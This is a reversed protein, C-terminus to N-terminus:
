SFTAFHSTGSGHLSQKLQFYILPLSSGWLEDTVEEEEAVLLFGVVDTNVDVVETVAVVELQMPRFQIPIQVLYPKQFHKKQYYM